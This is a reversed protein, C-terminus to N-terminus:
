PEIRQRLKRPSDDFVRRSLHLAKRLIATQQSRLHRRISKRESSDAVNETIGETLAALDHHWGLLDTLRKLQDVDDRWRKDETAPLCEIQYQWRKARKRFEHVATSSSNSTLRNARHRCGRYTDGLQHNVTAITVDDPLQRNWGSRFRELEAVLNEAAVSPPEMLRAFWTTMEPSITAWAQALKGSAEAVQQQWTEALVRANRLPSLTRNLDRLQHDFRVATPNDRDTLLRWWARLRKVAVRIPHVDTTGDRWRDIVQQLLDDGAAQIATPSLRPEQTSTTM